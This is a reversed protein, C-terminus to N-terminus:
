IDIAFASKTQKITKLSIHDYKHQLTLTTELRALSSTQHAQMSQGQM